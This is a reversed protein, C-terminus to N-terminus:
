NKLLAFQVFISLLAFLRLALHLGGLVVLEERETVLSLLFFNNELINLYSEQDIFFRCSSKAESPFYEAQACRWVCLLTEM